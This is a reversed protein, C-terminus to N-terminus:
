FNSGEIDTKSGPTRSAVSEEPVPYGTRVKLADGSFNCRYEAPKGGEAETGATFRLDGGSLVANKLPYREKGVSLTGKVKQFKQRLDLTMQESRRPCNWSWRGTVNAPVVWYLILGSIKDPEWQGMSFSFSVVRAGPRLGKLLKPRLKMNVSPLLYLTIVSAESIDTEFLDQRIFKVRGSVEEREARNSSDRIREPDIDVGVGRAGLKAAAVVIRGDGCGLDYVVDGKGVQALALMQEVIDDPTPVFPVDKGSADLSQLLAPFLAACATIALALATALLKKKQGTNQRAFLRM